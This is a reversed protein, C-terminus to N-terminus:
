YILPYDLAIYIFNIPFGIIHFAEGKSIAAELTLNTKVINILQHTLDDESFIGDMEVPPRVHPPPVPLVTIILWEPRTWKPDLGLAEVDSASINKLIQYAKQASLNQKREGTGPLDGM